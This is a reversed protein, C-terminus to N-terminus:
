ASSEKPEHHGNVSTKGETEARLPAASKDATNEIDTKKQALVAQPSDKKRIDKWGMGWSTVFMVASAGAAFWFVADVSKSYALLTGALAAPDNSVAARVAPGSGGAAIIVAPNVEPAYKPINLRLQNSLITEGIALFVAGGFTQAFSLMAMAVPVFKPQISNQVAIMPMQMGLGRGFGLLVQFGIWQGASSSPSLMSLLGIAVTSLVSCTVIWPLYYGLKGVTENDNSVLECIPNMM